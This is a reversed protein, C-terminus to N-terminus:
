GEARVGPTRDRPGADFRPIRRTEWAALRGRQAATFRDWGGARGALADRAVIALGPAITTGIAAGWAMFVIRRVPGFYDLIELAENHSASFTERSSNRHDGHPRPAPYHLVVIRPDYIVRLGRKRLPLCISLESHV